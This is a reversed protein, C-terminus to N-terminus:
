LFRLLIPNLCSRYIKEERAWFSVGNGRLVNSGPMGRPNLMMKGRLRSCFFSAENSFCGKQM